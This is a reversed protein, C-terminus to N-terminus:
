AAESDEAEDHTVYTAFNAIVDPLRDLDHIVHHAGRDYLLAEHKEREVYPPVFGIAWMGAARAAMMDEASDGVYACAQPTLRVNVADLIGLARQMPYPDPKGRGDQTERAVVLPLYRQWGFRNITWKAEARPRGTIVGMIRTSQCLSELTADGILPPEQAIFGDWNDGRYRKQFEDVIRGFSVQIGTSAIIAHTLKWDDNFGGINKYRQIAGPELERGCFHYATEEIARRYSGSVDVLVGDM